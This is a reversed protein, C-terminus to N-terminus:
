FLPIDTVRKMDVPLFSKGRNWWIFFRTAYLPVMHLKKAKEPPSELKCDAYIGGKRM